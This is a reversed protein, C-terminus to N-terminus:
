NLDCWKFPLSLAHNLEDYQQKLFFVSLYMYVYAQLTRAWFAINMKTDFTNWSQVANSKEAWHNTWFITGDKGGIQYLVWAM